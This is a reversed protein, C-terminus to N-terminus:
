MIILLCFIDVIINYGTSALLTTFVTQVSTMSAKSVTCSRDLVFQSVGNTAHSSLLNSANVHLSCSDAWLDVAVCSSISLCLDLCDAVSSLPYFNGNEASVNETQRWRECEAICLVNKRCLSICFLSLICNFFLAIPLLNLTVAM